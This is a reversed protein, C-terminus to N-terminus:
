HAEEQTSADSIDLLKQSSLFSDLDFLDIEVLESDEERYCASGAIFPAPSGTEAGKGSEEAPSRYLSRTGIIRDVSLATKLTDDHVILFAHERTGSRNQPDLFLGLNVVSIIEGRINTIGSLWRPLLPLPHVEQLEGAELVASLPIALRKGALDICIHRGIYDRGEKEGDGPTSENQGHLGAALKEDILALLQKQLEYASSAAPKVASHSLPKDTM